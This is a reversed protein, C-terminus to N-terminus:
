APPLILLNVLSALTPVHARRGELLDRTLVARYSEPDAPDPIIRRLAAKCDASAEPVPRALVRLLLGDLCPDSALLLVRERRARTIVRAPWPLDTDLVAARADYAANRAQRAAFDVVHEPGKGHANRITVAVGSRRHVYLRKLHQLFACEDAGEGVLLV